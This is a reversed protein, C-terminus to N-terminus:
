VHSVFMFVYEFGRAILEQLEDRQVLDDIGASRAENAPSWIIDRVILDERSM